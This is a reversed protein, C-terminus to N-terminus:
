GALEDLKDLFQRLEKPNLAASDATADVTLFTQWSTPDDDTLYVDYTLDGWTNRIRGSTVPENGILVPETPATGSNWADNAQKAHRKADDNAAALERRLTRAQEVNLNATGGKNGARWREAGEPDIIGLRIQLGDPGDIVAYLLDATEQEPEIKGSAILSEGHGLDIRRALGLGDGAHSLQNHQHGGPMHRTEAGLIGLLRLTDDDVRARVQEPSTIQLDGDAWTNRDVTFVNAADASM